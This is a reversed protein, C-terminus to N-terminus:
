ATQQHAVTQEARSLKEAFGGKKFETHWRRMLLWGSFRLLSARWTRYWARWRFRLNFLPFLMAPFIIVNRAVGFMSRFRYFRGMVKRIALQMSLPTLPPDPVFLPFNGDYYEWGILTRPLIRKQAALRATMETGPLPVPLLLQLTDLRAKKIFHKFRAIREQLSVTVQVGDPMPYGFIFMGHVHFGARHYRQTLDLMEDPKLKKNMAALEEAIPSEFGICVTTVGATRMAQLLETDRARDLRIQVAIDLMTGTASQYAALLNCLRLTESRVHGFLDDVLFFHRADHTEVLSAIQEVVREVSAARPAGKVTCFECDMGCGRIWGVPFLTIRAYRVLHFDPLPLTAFDTIPPRAATTIIQGDRRFALGAIADLPQQARLAALVERITEDAEGLVVIDVGNDLAEAINEGAFHQGGAITTVGISRYYQALRYLRPVTSSLGGYLGVAAARRITQLTTHDPLGDADRPGPKRYNNEDIMEVDWGNRAAATAVCVPGLATTHRAIRSYVNFM